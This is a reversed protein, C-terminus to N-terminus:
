RSLKRAKENVKRPLKGNEAALLISSSRHNKVLTALHAIPKANSAGWSEVEEINKENAM